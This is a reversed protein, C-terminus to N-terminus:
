SSDAGARRAQDSAGRSTGSTGASGGLSPREAPAEPVRRSLGRQGSCAARGGCSRRRDRHMDAPSTCSSTCGSPQSQAASCPPKRSRWGAVGACRACPVSELHEELRFVDQTAEGPHRGGRELRSSASCTVEGAEQDHRRVVTCPPAFEVGDENGIRSVAGVRCGDREGPEAGTVNRAIGAAHDIDRAASQPRRRCRLASASWGSCARGTRLPRRRSRRSRERCRHGRTSRRALRLAIRPTTRGPSMPNSM